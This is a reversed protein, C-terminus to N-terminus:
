NLREALLRNIEEIKAKTAAVVERFERGKRHKETVMKVCIRIVEVTVEEKKVYDDVGIALIGSLDDAMGSVVVVPTDVNRKRLEDVFEVGNCDPLMYDLLICEFQNEDILTPAAAGTDAAAYTKGIAAVCRCLSQRDVEDDDIVLIM